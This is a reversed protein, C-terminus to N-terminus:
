AKDPTDFELRLYVVPEGGNGLNVTVTREDVFGLRRYLRVAGPNSLAAGIEVVPSRTRRAEQTLYQIIATGVGRGRLNENVILDSIEGGRPWLTLQGFGIVRLDDAQVGCVVSIGRGQAMHHKARRVLQYVLEYPREPWCYRKLAGVDSLKVPRINFSPDPMQLAIPLSSTDM